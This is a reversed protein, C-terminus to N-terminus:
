RHALLNKESASTQTQKASSNIPFIGFCTSVDSELYRKPRSQQEPTLLVQRSDPSNAHQAMVNQGNERQAGAVPVFIVLQLLRCDQSNFRLKEIDVEPSRAM